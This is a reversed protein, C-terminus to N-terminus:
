IQKVIVLSFYGIDDPLNNLDTIIRQNEMGVNEVLICNELKGNAKINEILGPLKKGSKMFITNGKFISKDQMDDYSAPVIQLIQDRECLSIDAAAAAACFSTIGPVMQTSYGMGKIIKEMYIYTSYVSPDGLTLFAIDHGKELIESLNDANESYVRDIKGEDYTMPAAVDVIIKGDLYEKCIDLAVQRGSRSQPVAIYDCKEIVKIAKVTILDPDGPGVGVGYLSGKM